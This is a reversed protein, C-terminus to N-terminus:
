MNTNTGSKSITLKTNKKGREREVMKSVRVNAEFVIQFARDARGLAPFVIPYRVDVLALEVANRELVHVIRVLRELILGDLYAALRWGIRIMRGVHIVGTKYIPLRISM